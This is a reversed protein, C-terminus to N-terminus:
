IVTTREKLIAKRRRLCRVHKVAVKYIASFIGYFHDQQKKRVKQEVGVVHVQVSPVVLVVQHVEPSGLHSRSTAEEKQSDWVAAITNSWTRTWLLLSASTCPLTLMSPEPLGARRNSWQQTGRKASLYVATLNELQELIHEAEQRDGGNNISLDQNNVSPYWVLCIQVEEASQLSM